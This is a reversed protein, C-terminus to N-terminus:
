NMSAPKHDQPSKKKAAHAVGDRELAELALGTGAKASKDPRKNDRMALCMTWTWRDGDLKYIGLNRHGRQRELSSPVKTPRM